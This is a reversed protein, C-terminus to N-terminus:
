EEIDSQQVTIRRKSKKQHNKFSRIDSRAQVLFDNLFIKQPVMQKVMKLFNQRNKACVDVKGSRDEDEDGSDGICEILLPKDRTLSDDIDPEKVTNEESQEVKCWILLSAQIFKDLDFLTCYGLNEYLKQIHHDIMEQLTFLAIKNAVRTEKVITSFYNFFCSRVEQFQFGRKLYRIFIETPQDFNNSGEEFIKDLLCKLKSQLKLIFNQNLNYSPIQREIVQTYGLLMEYVKPQAAVSTYVSSSADM